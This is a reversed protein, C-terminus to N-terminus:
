VQMKGRISAGLEPSIPPSSDRWIETRRIPTKDM